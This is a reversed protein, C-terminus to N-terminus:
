LENMKGTQKFSFDLLLNNWVEVLFIKIGNVLECFQNAHRHSIEHFDEYSFNFQGGCYITTEDFLLDTNFHFKERSKKRPIPPTSFLTDKKDNRNACQFYNFKREQIDKCGHNVFMAHELQGCSEYGFNEECHISDNNPCISLDSHSISYLKM